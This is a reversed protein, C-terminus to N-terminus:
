KLMLGGTCPKQCSSMGPKMLVASVLQDSASDFGAEVLLQVAISLLLPVNLVTPGTSYFQDTPQFGEAAM